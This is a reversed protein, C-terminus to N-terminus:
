NRRSTRPLGVLSVGDTLFIDVGRPFISTNDDWAPWFWQPLGAPDITVTTEIGPGTLTVSPGGVLAPVFVVLTTSRDPYDQDGAEFVNIRPMDAPAGILAFAAAAPDAVVTAGCVLSLFDRARSSNLAADLWVPSDVDFLCRAICRIAPPLQGREIANLDDVWMPVGPRSMAQLIVRFGRNESHDGDWPTAKNAANFASAM